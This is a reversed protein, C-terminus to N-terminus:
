GRNGFYAAPRLWGLAGFTRSRGEQGTGFERLKPVPSRSLLPTKSSTGEESSSPGDTVQRGCAPSVSPPPASCSIHFSWHGLLTSGAWPAHRGAPAPLSTGCACCRVRGVRWKSAVRLRGEGQLSSPLTVSAHGTHGGEEFNVVATSCHWPAKPANRYRRRPRTRSDTM